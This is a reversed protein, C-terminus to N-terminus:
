LRTPNYVKNWFVMILSVVHDLQYGQTCFSFDWYIFDGNWCQSVKIYSVLVFVNFAMLNFKIANVWESARRTYFMFCNNKFYKMKNM